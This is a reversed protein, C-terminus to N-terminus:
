GGGRLSRRHAAIWSLLGGGRLGWASRWGVTRCVGELTSARCDLRWANAPGEEPEHEEVWTRADAPHVREPQPQEMIAIGGVQEETRREPREWGRSLGKRRGCAGAPRRGSPVEASRLRRCSTVPSNHCRERLLGKLHHAGGMPRPEEDDELHCWLY